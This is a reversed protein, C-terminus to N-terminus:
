GNHEGERLYQKLREYRGTSPNQDLVRKVAKNYDYFKDFSRYVPKGKKDTAQASVNLFAQRHANFEEDVLKLKRAELLWSYERM